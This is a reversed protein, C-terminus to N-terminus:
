PKLLVHFDLKEDESFKILTCFLKYPVCITLLVKTVYAYQFTKLLGSLKKLIEKVLIEFRKDNKNAGQLEDLTRIDEIAQILISVAQLPEFYVNIPSMDSFTEYTDNWFLHLAGVICQSFHILFTDLKTAICYNLLIQLVMHFLISSRSIAHFINPNFKRINKYTGKINIKEGIIIDGLLKEILQEFETRLLSPYNIYLKCQADYLANHNEFSKHSNRVLKNINDNACKALCELQVKVQLNLVLKAKIDSFIQASRVLLDEPILQQEKFVLSLSKEFFFQLQNLINGTTTQISSNAETVSPSSADDTKKSIVELDDLANSLNYYTGFKIAYVLTSNQGFFRNIGSEDNKDM